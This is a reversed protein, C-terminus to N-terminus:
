GRPQAFYGFAESAAYSGPLVDRRRGVGAVPECLLAPKSYDQFAIPALPRMLEVKMGPPRGGALAEFWPQSRNEKISDNRLVLKRSM